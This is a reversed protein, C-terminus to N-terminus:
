SACLPVHGVQSSFRAGSTSSPASQNKMIRWICVPPLLASETEALAPRAQEGHLLLLHREFVDGAHIFGLFLQLFDDLEQAFRLLELLEASANGLAHQQDSRRSGALGQQRAGNGAFGVNREERM